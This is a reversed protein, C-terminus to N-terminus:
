SKGEPKLSLSVVVLEAADSFARDSCARAVKAKAEGAPLGLKRLAKVADAAVEKPTLDFRDVEKGDRCLVCARGQRRLHLFYDRALDERPGLYFDGEGEAVRWIVTM